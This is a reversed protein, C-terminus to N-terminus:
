CWFIRIFSIDAEIKHETEKLLIMLIRWYLGYGEFGYKIYLKQIKPDAFADNNHTLKVSIKHSNEM